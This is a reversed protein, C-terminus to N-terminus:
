RESKPQSRVQWLLFTLQDARLAYLESRTSGWQDHGANDVRLLVPKSSATAAQLRAAMKAPQWPDVVPDNLGTSLLVAPYKTGDTVHHYASMEFLSAFDQEAKVTGFEPINIPGNRQFEGRVMDTTGAGILAAAFLDPRETIARGILIGGASIGAGVLREPRTYKERVLYEACAIFDRWTNAKTSKQGAHHWEEGYEGGGRVHAVAIAGGNEYWALAFADFFPDFTAGYSGYGVLYVMSNGNRQMGRRHVLTLPVRVGDYSTVQLYTAELDAAKEAASEARLQTDRLGSAGYEYIGPGRVWGHVTFLAGDFRQDASYIEAIGEMPIAVPEPKKTRYSIRLLQGAAGERLTVYLADRAAGLSMPAAASAQLITRAGVIKGGPLRLTIVRGRTAGQQTLLFLDDGHVAFDTVRDTFDVIKQWKPYGRTVAAQSALYLARENRVGDSIAALAWRSGPPLYISAFQTPEIKLPAGDASGVLVADQSSDAGLRHRRATSNLYRESPSSGAPLTPMLNYFLVRGDSSWNVWSFRLVNGIPKEIDKGSATDLIHMSVRESNGISVAYAVRSGDPSPYVLELSAAPGGPTRFREPDVLLRERGQLGHRIYLKFVDDTPSSKSYLYSNGPLKTVFQFRADMQQDLKRLHERLRDREPIAGLLQETYAGQQRIWDVAEPTSEEMYRYPDRIEHGFYSEIVEHIPAKPPPGPVPRVRDQATAPSCFRAFVLALIVISSRRM